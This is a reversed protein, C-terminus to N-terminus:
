AATECADLAFGHENPNSVAMARDSSSVIADKAVPWTFRITTGRGAGDGRDVVAVEGGRETVLRRVLALGVGSSELQDRPRLTQFIAFVKERFAAPIGPGDDSVEIALRGDVARCTVVVTGQPRDHHRIANSLLNMLVHELPVRETQAMLDAGDFRMVFNRDRNILVWCAHVLRSISVQELPHEGRALRAYALLDDLLREMRDIRQRMLRLHRRTPEPVADGLDEAIWAALNDLARLPAKLDHSTAHAFTELEANSRELERAHRELEATYRERERESEIRHTIDQIGAMTMSEGEIVVGSLRVEVPVRGGDRKIAEVGRAQSMWRPGPPLDQGATVHDAHMERLEIPVLSSVSKGVLEFSEYGFLKEAAPNVFRIRGGRDVVLIGSAIADIMARFSSHRERLLADSLALARRRQRGLLHIVLFLVLDASLGVVGVVTSLRSDGQEIFGPLARTRMRWHRGALHIVREDALGDVVPGTDTSSDLSSYVLGDRYSSDRDAIELSLLSQDAGLVGRMLEDARLVMGVMARFERWRTANDTGASVDSGFVPMNLVFGAIETGGTKAPLRVVGSLTPEGTAIAVDAAMRRIPEIRMDRGLLRRNLADLPEAFVIPYYFDRPNSPRIQYDGFGEARMAARHRPLAKAPIAFAVTLSRAAPLYGPLQLREVFRHWGGRDVEGELTLFAAAHRVAREYEHMRDRVQTELQAVRFSFRDQLRSEVYRQSLLWALVTLTLSLCLIFLAFGPGAMRDLLSGPRMGRRPTRAGDPIARVSSGVLADGM